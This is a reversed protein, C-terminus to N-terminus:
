RRRAQRTSPPASVAACRRPPRSGRRPLYRKGAPPEIGFRSSTSPLGPCMGPRGIQSASSAAISLTRTIVRVVTVPRKHDPCRHHSQFAAGHRSWARRPAARINRASRPWARPAPPPRAPADRRRGGIVVTGAHHHRARHTGIEVAPADPGPLFTTTNEAIGVARVARGGIQQFRTHMDAARISLAGGRWRRDPCGTGPAFAGLTQPPAHGCPARPRRRQM